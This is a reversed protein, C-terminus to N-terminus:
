PQDTWPQFLQLDWVAANESYSFRVFIPCKTETDCIILEIFLNKMM